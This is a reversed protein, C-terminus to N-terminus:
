GVTTPEHDSELNRSALSLVRDTRVSAINGNALPKGQAACHAKRELQRQQQQQQQKADRMRRALKM